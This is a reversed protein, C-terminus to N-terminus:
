PLSSTALRGGTSMVGGRGAKRQCLSSAVFRRLSSASAVFLFGAM